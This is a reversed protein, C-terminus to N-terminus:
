VMSDGKCSVCRICAHVTPSGTVSAAFIGVYSRPILLIVLASAVMSFCNTPRPSCSRIRLVKVSTVSVRSNGRALLHQLLVVPLVLHSRLWVLVLPLLFLRIRWLEILCLGVLHLRFDDLLVQAAVLGDALSDCWITRPRRVHAPRAMLYKLITSVRRLPRCDLVLVVPILVIRPRWLRVSLGPEGRLRSLQRRARCYLPRACGTCVQLLGAPILHGYVSGCRLVGARLSGIGVVARGDHAAADHSHGIRQM